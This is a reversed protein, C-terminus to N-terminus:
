LLNLIGTQSAPDNLTSVLATYNVNTAVKFNWPLDEKDCVLGLAAAAFARSGETLGQSEDTLMAALPAVARSDGIYGITVALSAQVAFVRNKPDRLMTLLETLTEKDGLLALGIASESLLAPRNAATKVIERIAPIATRDDLLGLGV